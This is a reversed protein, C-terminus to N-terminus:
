CNTQVSFTLSDEVMSGKRAVPAGGGRVRALAVSGFSGDGIEKILEFRDDLTSMTHSTSRAMTDNVVM